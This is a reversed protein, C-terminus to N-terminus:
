SRSERLGCAHVRARVQLERREWKGVIQKISANLLEVVMGLKRLPQCARAVAERLQAHVM